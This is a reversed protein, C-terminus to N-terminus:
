HRLLLSFKILGQVNSTAETYREIMSMHPTLGKARFHKRWRNNAEIVDNSIGSNQAEATAGRRASRRMSFSELNVEDSIINPFEVQISRLVGRLWIDLESVEARKGRSNRFLPGEEIGRQKYLTLVRNFWMRINMGKSTVCALPQCYIKAGTVQKFKGSLMLPVHPTEHKMSEEWHNMMLGADVRVIEEGRLAGYYGALLMTATLATMVKGVGDQDYDVWRTELLRMSERIIPATLPRDPIWVDGMRRHCGVMFRKFWLSNTCSSSVSLGVTQAILVDAVSGSGGPCTNVLNSYHTRMKRATEFQIKTANRGPALSRGLIACAVRMGWIDEKPYPGREPYAGGEFGLLKLESLYRLGEYLNGNVTSRERSWLSDLIARKIAIKALADKHNGHEPIRGMLNIFHCRVCQFPTMLHDGDRAEKFRGPDEVDCDGPNVLSDDLDQM